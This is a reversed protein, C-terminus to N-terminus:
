AIRREWVSVIRQTQPNKKRLATHLTVNRSHYRHKLTNTHTHTHTHTRVHLLLSFTCLSLSLSLSNARFYALICEFMVYAFQIKLRHTSYFKINLTSTVISSRHASVIKIRQPRVRRLNLVRAFRSNTACRTTLETVCVRLTNMRRVRLVRRVRETM